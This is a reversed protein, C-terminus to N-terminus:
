GGIRLLGCRRAFSRKRIPETIFLRRENTLGWLRWGHQVPTL